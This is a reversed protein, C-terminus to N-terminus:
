TMVSTHFFRTNRDGYLVWESRAKQRWFSEEQELVNDLEVHLKSALVVLSRSFRSTLAKEIGRLRAKIRKKRKGIHGFVDKNWCVVKTKFETVLSGFDNNSDWVSGLIDRFQPHTKWADIFRFPRTSPIGSDDVLSILLPRHGSGLRDLHTVFSSKCVSLWKENAVFRDVNGNTYAKDCLPLMYIYINIDYM